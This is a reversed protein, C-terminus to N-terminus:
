AVTTILMLCQDQIVRQLVREILAFAYVFKLGPYRSLMNAM